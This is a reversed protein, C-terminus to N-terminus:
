QELQQPKASQIGQNAMEVGIRRFVPEDIAVKLVEIATEIELLGLLGIEEVGIRYNVSLFAAADEFLKEPSISTGEPAVFADFTVEALKDIAQYEPNVTRRYERKGDVIVPVIRSPLNPAHSCNQDDWKRVLPVRWAQGDGLAAEIGIIGIERALDDPGPPFDKDCGVWFTLGEIWRQREPNYTIPEDGAAVMAGAGVPGADCWSTTHVITGGAGGLSYTFRDLCGRAALMAPNMGPTGPFYYLFRRM